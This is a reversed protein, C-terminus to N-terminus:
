TWDPGEYGEDVEAYKKQCAPCAFIDKRPAVEYGDEDITRAEVIDDPSLLTFRKRCDTNECTVYNKM